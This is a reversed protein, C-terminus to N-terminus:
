DTCALGAYLAAGRWLAEEDLVFKPSHLPAPEKVAPDTAGVRVMAGPVKQVYLAFDEGGMRAPQERIDAQEGFVSQAALRV